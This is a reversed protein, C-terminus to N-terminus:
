QNLLQIFLRSTLSLDDYTGQAVKRGDELLIISGALRLIEVDHTIVVIAMGDDSAAASNKILRYIFKATEGDVSSTPEDLVLLKPRRVSARAIGLRQAQGGSLAQGGEGILTQYGEPLSSIFDHLGVSWAAGVVQEHERYLSDKPLGYVINDYITMPFLFSSQPAYGCQLRLGHINLETTATQGYRLPSPRDPDRPSPVELSLLIRGLTTKGCGSPGAIVTCQGANIKLSVDHLVKTSDGPEYSFSLRECRVPLPSTIEAYSDKRDNPLNTWALLESAATQAQTLQPISGLFGAATGVGFLLLNVVKLVDTVSINAEEDALLSTGYYFVLATIAYNVSQYLGFLPSSYIARRLGKALSNAVAKRVKDSFHSELEFTRVVRLALLPESLTASCASASDNCRSEWKSSVSTYAKIVGLFAPVPSLAVLTLRWSITLSWLISVAIMGSAIVVLPLFRGVLERMEEGNRDLVETVQCPAHKRHRFWSAPQQVVLEVVNLRIRDVWCQGAYELLYRSAAMSLGDCIAIGLLYLAWKKGEGLKDGPTWMATLLQAFCYSFMPTIIIAVVCAVLGFFTALKGPFMLTPWVTRLISFLSRQQSFLRKDNCEFKESKRNPEPRRQRLQQINARRDANGFIFPSGSVASGQRLIHKSTDLPEFFSSGNTRHPLNIDARWSSLWSAEVTEEDTALVLGREHNKIHWRAAKTREEHRDIQGFSGSGSNALLLEELDPWLSRVRPPANQVNAPFSPVVTRDRSSKFSPEQTCSSPSLITTCPQHKKGTSFLTPASFPGDPAKELDRRFGQQLLSSDNMVYVYDNQGDQSLDHTIIITTKDKRWSRIAETLLSRNLQDLGMTVEDLILVKPDRLAGRSLALRQAQGGSLCHGWRGILTNLGHPLDDIMKRLLALECAAMVQRHTVVKPKPHGFAVNTFLTENFVVSSQQILTIQSQIWQPDLSGFPLGDLLVEGTTPEYYNAVLNGITSKGSGSRGVIFTTEGAPFFLSSTKLAPTDLQAPYVFSM